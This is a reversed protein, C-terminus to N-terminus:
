RSKAKWGYRRLGREKRGFVERAEHRSGAPPKPASTVGCAVGVPGARRSGAPESSLMERSDMWRERCKGGAGRRTESGRGYSWPASGTM